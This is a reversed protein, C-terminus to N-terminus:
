GCGGSSAGCNLCHRCTGTQVLALQHCNSCPDGLYGQEKAIQVAPQHGNGNSNPWHADYDKVPGGITTALSEQDVNALDNRGLYSIALERFLYDTLSSAMKIQDNGQVIGNPEFRTGAFAEVFEELPVGYQLGISTAIAFCDLIARFAAGEKHTTLFIEGLTGDEYEGTRVYLTHGGIRAKQTYGLRRSPLKRRLVRAVVEEVPLPAADEEDAGSHLVESLKSGARYVAVCKVMKDYARFYARNVDGRTANNPLNVTKSVSGSVFPSVAGLMDIHGDSSISRTGTRGCRNACDFVPLHEKELHPSGEVTGTGCVYNNLEAVQTPTLGLHALLSFDAPPKEPVGLKKREEPILNETTFAFQVSFTAQCAAEIRGWSGPLVSALRELHPAGALSQHGVAYFLIDQAQEQSYGLNRLAPVLGQNAIRFYGGGTLKKFKVLSYDPEVGTTDCGMVIGITGTPALVTVQANRFGHEEGKIWMGDAARRAAALLHKDSWKQSIRQPEVTLGEFPTTEYTAARHNRIVRLMEQENAEYDAFPGLESAIEASAEYATCHMIASVCAALARGEDSDYALGSAMVLAGLNAYGLGITRQRFTNVAVERSPFQSLYVTIELALTWLRTAHRFGDVDFPEDRNQDHFFLLNQSALNCSSNDVWLFEACPNTGRQKDVKPCTHWENIIGDFQVGPDAVTWAAGIIQDWLDRAQLTKCPVPKRGEKKAKRLETRWFLDWHGDARVADMFAHPIRVSNNANQGSVTQYAEGRWDVSMPTVKVDKAGDRVLDTVRRLYEVPVGQRRYERVAAKLAAEGEKSAQVVASAARQLLASGAVLCAVKEEERVKWGIFEEIDPHDVDLVDMRAARRVTGGSKISGGSVDGVRLFSLLGSSKGGGSLPEGTGRIESYNSGAGAGMKFVRAERVWLDMIGGPNVLDDSVSHIFCASATPNEYSDQTQNLEGTKPDVRWFGEAGKKIGYAWSLGANFWQPSNPAGAQHCLIYRMEDYFARANAESERVKESVHAEADSGGSTPGFYGGKWGWYTWCGAIRDFVQRADNEGGFTADIAPVSRHLWRPVDEDIVQVTRSPVGARRFYKECLIDCALQGWSEPALYGRSEFVVRGDPEVIRTERPVFNIGDYPSSLNATTFGDYPSAITFRREIKM